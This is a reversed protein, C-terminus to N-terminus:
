DGTTGPAPPPMDTPPPAVGAPAAKIKGEKMAQEIAKHMEVYQLRLEHQIGKLAKEEEDTLNGKTKEELVGLMEIYLKALDIAIVTQGTQPDRLPQLYQIAQSAITSIVHMFEVKEPIGQDREAAKQEAQESLKEREAQAQAKWDDDTIIKPAEDSM